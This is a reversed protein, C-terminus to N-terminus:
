CASNVEGASSERPSDLSIVTEFAGVLAKVKSKRLESLMSATEEIVNNYLRPNHKKGEASQHRLVVKESGSKSREIKSREEGLKKGVIRRKSGEVTQLKVVVKEPKINAANVDGGGGGGGGGVVVKNDTITRRRASKIDRRIDDGLIRAPKFKLRKPINNGQPQLEIVKGRRFTLKRNTIVKNAAGVLTSMKPKIKYVVKANEGQHGHGSKNSKNSSSVSSLMSPSKLVSRTNIKGKNGVMSRLGKRSSSSVGSKGTQTSTQEFSKNESPPSSSSLKTAYSAPTTEESSNSSAPEIVHGIKDQSNGKQEVNEHNKQSSVKKLNKASKSSISSPKKMNHKSSLPPSPSTSKEKGGISSTRTQKSRSETEKRSSSGSPSKNKITERKTQSRSYEQVQLPSPESHAQKIDSNNHELSVNTEELPPSKKESTVIKDHAVEKIDVPTNIKELKSTQTSKSGSGSKKAWVLSTANEESVKTNSEKKTNRKKAPSWPKAENAHQIGYKCLDHCSGKPSGLYRSRIKPPIKTIILRENPNAKEDVDEPENKESKLQNMTNEEAM